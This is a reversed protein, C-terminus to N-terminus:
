NIKNTRRWIKMEDAAQVLKDRFQPHAIGILAEAREYTSKGKFQAIGYETAIYQVLSRPLTVITGPSLVPLIRSQLNGNKDTFTSNLCIIGKGGHSNFAGMIFDLQGGTGSVHRAGISESAVQTFLDVSLANNIAIVKDNLAIIRPDNTYNVPYIACVPNNDLFDYLKQTGLAFTYVMKNKDITKKAGTILGKEYLDVCADMMMESHIGLDKLDSKAILAGVANPLGGIGLQLCAGDEIENILLSAIKEETETPEIAPLQRLPFHNGEVVYDIQSIHVSEQNGGLCTPVKNNVEVIKIKTKEMAAPTVSNSPGLNFYGRADMPGVGFFGVDIEFYKKIIRSGQHYTNPIYNCLNLDHLKRSVLGFHLDNLIFHERKKDALVVQPTSTYCVGMIQVDSLDCKRKALAEDLVHPFMTFEGYAVRDGSKVMAAAQEATIKKQEYQWKVIDAM